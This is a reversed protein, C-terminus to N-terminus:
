ELFSNSCTFLRFTQQGTCVTVLRRSWWIKPTAFYFIEVHFIRNDFDFYTKSELTIFFYFVAKQFIPHTKSFSCYPLYLSDIRFVYRAAFGVLLLFALLSYFLRPAERMFFSVQSGSCIYVPLALEERLFDTAHNIVHWLVVPASAWGIFLSPGPNENDRSAPSLRGLHPYPTECSRRERESKKAM